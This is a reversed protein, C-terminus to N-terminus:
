EANEKRLYKRQRTDVRVVEGPGIFLPVMIELGGEVTASKWAAESGGRQPAATDVVQLPMSDPLEIELLKGELFWAKYDTNEKLFWHREGVQEPTLEVEDFTQADLFVFRDPQQFSFQVRRSELDTMDIREADGFAREVHHGTRLNRLRAHIKPRTKATGVHHFEEVLWPAGDLMLVQGRKFEAPEITQM